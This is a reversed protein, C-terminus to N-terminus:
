AAGRTQYRALGYRKVIKSLYSVSVGNREAIEALSYRWGEGNREAYDRRFWRNEVTVMRDRVSV